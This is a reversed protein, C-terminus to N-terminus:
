CGTCGNPTNRKLKGGHRTVTGANHIGGGSHGATNENVVTDRLSVVGTAEGLQANYIGGGDHRAENRTVRSHEVTLSGVNLIGAGDYNSPELGSPDDHRTVTVHSLLMTSGIDNYIGKPARTVTSHSLVLHAQPVDSRQGNGNTINASRNDSFRSRSVITSGRNLLGIEGNGSVVSHVLNARQGADIELGNLRNDRIASDYAALSGGAVRVGAANTNSVTVDRMTLTGFMLVGYIGGSIALGSIAVTPNTESIQLVVRDVGRLAADSGQGALTLDKTIVFNGICTGTVILSDGPAAADIAAQLSAGQRCDVLTSGAAAAAEPTAIATLVLCCSLAAPALRHM